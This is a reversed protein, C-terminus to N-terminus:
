KSNSYSEALINFIEQESMAEWESNNIYVWNMEYEIPNMEQWFKKNNERFEEESIEERNEMNYYISVMEELENSYIVESMTYAVNYIIGNELYYAGYIVCNGEAGYRIYDEALYYIRGDNEYAQNGLRDLDFGSVEGKYCIKEELEIIGDYTDNVNYFYNYSYHGSGQMSSTILELKGDKNLDYVTLGPVSIDGMLYPRNRSFVEIQKLIDEDLEFQSYDIKQERSGDEYYIYTIHEKEVFEDNEYVYVYESKEAANDVNYGRIIQNEKDVKYAPIDEFIPNYIYGEETFIYACSHETGHSGAHGLFIILDDNGDFTVDEMHAAFDCADWVYRDTFVNEDKSPYDVFLTQIIEGDQFFFFYDEKHSYENEPQEIYKIKVRFVKEEQIWEYSEIEENEDLSINQNILTQIYEDIFINYENDNISENNIIENSVNIENSIKNAEIKYKEENENIEENNNCGSLSLIILLLITIRFYKNM